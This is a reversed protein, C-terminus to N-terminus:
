RFMRADISVVPCEDFYESFVRANITASSVIV